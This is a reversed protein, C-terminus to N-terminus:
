KQVPIRFNNLISKRLIIKQRKSIILWKTHFGNHILHIKGRYQMTWFIENRFYVGDKVFYHTVDNRFYVGKIRWVMKPCVLMCTTWKNRQNLCGKLKLGIWEDTCILIWLFSIYVWLRKLTYLIIFIFTYM